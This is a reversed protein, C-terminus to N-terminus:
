GPEGLRVGLFIGLVLWFLAFAIVAAVAIVSSM